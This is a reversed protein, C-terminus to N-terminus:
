SAVPDQRLWFTDNAWAIVQGELQMTGRVTVNADSFNVDIFAPADSPVTKTGPFLGPRNAEPAFSVGLNGTDVGLNAVETITAFNGRQDVWTGGFFSEIGNM